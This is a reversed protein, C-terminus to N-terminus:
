TIRMKPVLDEADTSVKLDDFSQDADMNPKGIDEAASHVKTEGFQIGTKGIESAYIDPHCAPIGVEIEESVGIEWLQYGASSVYRLDM